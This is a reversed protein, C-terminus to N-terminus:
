GIFSQTRRLGGFIVVVYKVYLGRLIPYEDEERSAMALGVIVIHTNNQTNNDVIVTKNGM